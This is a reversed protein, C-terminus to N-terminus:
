LAPFGELLARVGVLSSSPVAGAKSLLWGDTIHLLDVNLSGILSDSRHTSILSAGGAELILVTILHCEFIDQNINDTLNKSILHALAVRFILVELLGIISDDRIELITELVDCIVENELYELLHVVPL